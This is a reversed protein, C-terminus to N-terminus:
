KDMYKAFILGFKNIWQKNIQKNRVTASYLSQKYKDVAHPKHTDPPKLPHHQEVSNCQTISGFKTGVM